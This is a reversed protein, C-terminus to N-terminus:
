GRNLAHDAKATIDLIANPPTYRDGPYFLNGDSVRHSPPLNRHCYKSFNPCTKGKNFYHHPYSYINAKPMVLRISAILRHLSRFQDMSFREKGTLCIGISTTNVGKCHAGVLDIDRGRQILGIQKKCIVFHYGIDEWGRELHWKKIVAADDHQPYDSDSCHVIVKDIKNLNRYEM